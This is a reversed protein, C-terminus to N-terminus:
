LVLLEVDEEIDEVLGPGGGWVNTNASNGNLLCEPLFSCLCQIVNCMKKNDSLAPFLQHVGVM